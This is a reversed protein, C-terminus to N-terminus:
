LIFLRILSALPDTAGNLAVDAPVTCNRRLGDQGAEGIRELVGEVTFGAGDLHNRLQIADVDTVHM